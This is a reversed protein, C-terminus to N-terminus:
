KAAKPRRKKRPKPTIEGTSRDVSEGPQVAEPADAIRTVQAIHTGSARVVGRDSVEEFSVGFFDAVQGALNELDGAVLRAPKGKGLPRLEFTGPFELVAPPIGEAAEEAKMRDTFAKGPRAQDPDDDDEDPEGIKLQGPADPEGVPREDDDDEEESKKPKKHEFLSPDPEPDEDDFLGPKDANDVTESIQDGYWAILKRKREIELVVDSHKAKLAVAGGGEDEEDLEALIADREGFLKSREAQARKLKANLNRLRNSVTISFRKDSM